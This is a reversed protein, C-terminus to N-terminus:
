RMALGSQLPAHKPTDFRALIDYYTRVNEVLVVAEGGRARGSKLRAYYEPRSMLPLVKKMEYWSNPDRQMGAALQRAGNLHGYGLNYAALALWTRDPEDVDDSLRDVLDALYRAGARVSEGANLRNTVGLRDATEETLMMMGRVGTYSTALPNWRSEQYALAALLRWDIGTITEAQQFLPRYRPLVRRMDEIFQTAGIPNIRKVHGFYRDHLRELNGSGAQATIFADAEAKLTTDTGRFAWAYAVKGQLPQAVMLDPYYNAAVDFHASDTAALEAKREAIRSLLDISSTVPPRLLTIPVSEALSLVGAESITGPIVEVTRGALSEVDDVPLSDVHQAILPRADRLPVSFTLGALPQIQASAVFDVDGQALLALAADPSSSLVLHLRRSRSEAFAMLLDYEFGSPEGDGQPPQYFVPDDLVAVRLEGPPRETRKASGDCAAILAGVLLLVWRLKSRTMPILGGLISLPM